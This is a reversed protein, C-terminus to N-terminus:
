SDQLECCDPHDIAWSAPKTLRLSSSHGSKQLKNKIKSYM